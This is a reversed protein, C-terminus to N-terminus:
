GGSVPLLLAVEQRPSLVHDRAAHEGAVVPLAAALAAEADPTRAALDALLDAVTAGPPLEVALLPAGFVGALRGALRVRVQVRGGAGSADRGEVGACRVM